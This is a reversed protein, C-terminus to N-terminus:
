LVLVKVDWKRLASFNCFFVIGEAKKCGKAHGKFDGEAEKGKVNRRRGRM